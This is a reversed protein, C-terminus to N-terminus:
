QDHRNPRFSGKTTLTNTSCNQTLGTPLAQFQARARRDAVFSSYHFSLWHGGRIGKLEDLLHAGFNGFDNPWGAALHHQGRDHDKDHRGQGRDEKCQNIKSEFTAELRKQTHKALHM